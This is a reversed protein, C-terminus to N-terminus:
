CAHPRPLFTPLREHLRPWERDPVVMPPRSVDRTDPLLLNLVGGNTTAGLLALTVALLLVDVAYRFFTLERKM